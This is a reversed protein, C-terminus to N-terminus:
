ANTLFGIAKIIDNRIDQKDKKVLNDDLCLSMYIIRKNRITECCEQNLTHTDSELRRAVSKAGFRIEGSDGPSFSWTVWRRTKELGLNRKRKRIM